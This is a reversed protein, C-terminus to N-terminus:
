KCEFCTVEGQKDVGAVGKCKPCKALRGLIQLLKAVTEVQWRGKSEPEFSNDRAVKTIHANTYGTAQQITASRILKRRSFWRDITLGTEGDMDGRWIGYWQHKWKNVRVAERFASKYPEIDEKTYHPVGDICFM